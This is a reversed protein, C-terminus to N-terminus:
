ARCSVVASSLTLCRANSRTSVARAVVRPLALPPLLDRQRIPPSVRRLCSRWQRACMSVVCHALLAPRSCDRALAAAAFHPPRTLPAAMHRRRPATTHASEVRPTARAYELKLVDLDTPAGRSRLAAVLSAPSLKGIIPTLTPEYVRCMAESMDFCLGTVRELKTEADTGGIAVDAMCVLPVRQSRLTVTPEDRLWACYPTERLSVNHAALSALSAFSFGSQEESSLPWGTHWCSYSQAVSLRCNAGSRRTAKRSCAQEQTGQKCALFLDGTKKGRAWSDCTHSLALSAPAFTLLLVLSLRRTRPTSM